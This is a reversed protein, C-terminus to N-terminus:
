EQHVPSLGDEGWFAGHAGETDLCIVFDRLVLEPTFIDVEDILLSPLRSNFIYPVVLHEPAIMLPEHM